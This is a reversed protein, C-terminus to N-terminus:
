DAIKLMHYPKNNKSIGDMYMMTVFDYQTKEKLEEFSKEDVGVTRVKKETDIMVSAYRNIYEVNKKQYKSIVYVPVGFKFM